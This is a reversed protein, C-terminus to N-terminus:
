GSETFLTWYFLIRCFLWCDLGFWLLIVGDDRLLSEAIFNCSGWYIACVDRRFLCRTLCWAEDLELTLVSSVDSFTSFSWDITFPLTNFWSMTCLYFVLDIIIPSLVILCVFSHSVDFLSFRFGLPKIDNGPAVVWHM